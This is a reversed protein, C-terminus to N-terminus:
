KMVERSLGRVYGPANADVDQAPVCGMIRIRRTEEAAIQRRLQIIAADGIGKFFLRGSRAPTHHPTM